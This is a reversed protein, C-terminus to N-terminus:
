MLINNQLARTVTALMRVTLERNETLLDYVADESLVGRKLDKPLKGAEDAEYDKMWQNSEYYDGLKKLCTQIDEYESLVESLKRVAEQSADLYSEMETIRQIRNM